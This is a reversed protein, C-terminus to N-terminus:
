NVSKRSRNSSWLFLAVLGAILMVGLGILVPGLSKNLWAFASAIKNMFGAKSTSSSDPNTLTATSPKPTSPEVSDLAQFLAKLSATDGFAALVNQAASQPQVQVTETPPILKNTPIQIETLMPVRKVYVLAAKIHDQALEQLPQASAKLNALDYPGEIRGLLTGDLGKVEVQIKSTLPLGDLPKTAVSIQPGSATQTQHVDQDTIVGDGDSDMALSVQFQENSVTQMLLVVSGNVSGAAIIIAVGETSFSFAKPDVMAETATHEYVGSDKPVLTGGVRLTDNSSINDSQTIRISYNGQTFPLQLDGTVPQGQILTLPVSSSNGDITLQLSATSSTKSILMGPALSIRLFTQGPTLGEALVQTPISAFLLWIAILAMIGLGRINKMQVM